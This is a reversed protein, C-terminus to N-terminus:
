WSGPCFIRETLATLVTTIVNAVAISCLLKTGSVSKDLLFITIFVTPIEIILTICLYIFGVIYFPTHELLQEFTYLGPILYNFLYPALFSLINGIIVSVSLAFRIKTGSFYKIYFIEILLTFIIVFPLIDYPRRESIWRWSSNALATVPFLFIVCLDLLLAPLIKKNNMDTAGKPFHYFCNLM